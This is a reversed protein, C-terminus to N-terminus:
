GSFEVVVGVERLGRSFYFAKLGPGDSGDAVDLGLGWGASKGAREVRGSVCGCEANVHDFLLVSFPANRHEAPRIWILAEKAKIQQEESV